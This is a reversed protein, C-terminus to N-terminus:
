SPTATVPHLNTWIVNNLTQETTAPLGAVAARFSDTCGPNYRDHLEITIMRVQPLWARAGTAFVDREAGEIDIKLIDIHPFGSLAILEAITMARIRNGTALSDAPPRGVRFEWAPADPNALIVEGSEHYVAAHVARIRPHGAINRSLQTFNQPAAEIALIRAGPFKQAYYLSSCGIHAGADIIYAPPSSFRDSHLDDHLFVQEFIELDTRADRLSVSHGASLPIEVPEDARSPRRLRALLYVLAGRLSLTALARGFLYATRFYRYRPYFLLRRRLASKWHVLQASNM